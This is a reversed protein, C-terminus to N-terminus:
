GNLVFATDDCAAIKPLKADKLRLLRHRDRLANPAERNAPSSPADNVLFFILASLALFFLLTLILLTSLRRPQFFFLYELLETNYLVYISTAANASATIIIEYQQRLGNNM